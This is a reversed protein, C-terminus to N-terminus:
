VYINYSHMYHYSTRIVQLTTVNVALKTFILWNTEFNFPSVYMFWVCVGGGGHWAV